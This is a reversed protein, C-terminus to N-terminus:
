LELLLFNEPWHQHHDFRSVEVVPELDGIIRLKSQGSRDVRLRTVLNVPGNTFEVHAIQIDVAFARASNCSRMREASEIHRAGIRLGPPGIIQIQKRLSLRHSLLELDSGDPFLVSGSVITEPK